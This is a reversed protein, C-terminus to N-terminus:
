YVMIEDLLTASDFVSDGVDGSQFKLTVTQGRYKSIDFSAEQWGTM